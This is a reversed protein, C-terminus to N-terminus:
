APSQALDDPFSANTYVNQVDDLDELMELLRLVKDADDGALPTDSNARQTVEGEVPELGAAALAAKVADFEEPGTIVEIAGDDDVHIDEAGAGAAIDM